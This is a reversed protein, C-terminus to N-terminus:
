EKSVVASMAEVVKFFDTIGITLSPPRGDSAINMQLNVQQAIRLVKEFHPQITKTTKRHRLMKQSVAPPQDAGLDEIDCEKCTDKRGKDTMLFAWTSKEKKCKSCIKMGAGKIITINKRGFKKLQNEIFERHKQKEVQTTLYAM